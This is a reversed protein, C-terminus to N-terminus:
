VGLGRAERCVCLVLLSGINLEMENPQVEFEPAEEVLCRVSESVGPLRQQRFARCIAQYRRDHVKVAADANQGSGAREKILVLVGYGVDDRNNLSSMDRDPSPSRRVEICPYSLTLGSNVNQRVLVPIATEVGNVDTAKLLLARIRTAVAELCRNRVPDSDDEVTAYAPAAYVGAEAATLWYHGADLSLDVTGNGTRGGASTWTGSGVEGIFPSTFVTVAGGATGAVTVELGDEIEATTISIAM